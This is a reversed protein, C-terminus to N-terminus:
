QLHTWHGENRKKRSEWYETRGVKRCNKLKNEYQKTKKAMAATVQQTIYKGILEASMSMKRDLDLSKEEASKNVNQGKKLKPM